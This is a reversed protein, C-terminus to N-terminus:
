QLLLCHTATADAPGYALRCRAGSLYGRWWGVVWNKVPWIGKRGGLWCRWLVSPLWLLFLIIGTRTWCYWMILCTRTWSGVNASLAACKSSRAMSHRLWQQADSLLRNIDWAQRAWLLLSAVACHLLCILCVSLCVSMMGNYFGQDVHLLPLALLTKYCLLNLIKYCLLSVSTMRVMWVALSVCAM